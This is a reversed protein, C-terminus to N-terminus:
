INTHGERKNAVAHAVSHSVDYAVNEGDIKWIAIKMIREDIRM